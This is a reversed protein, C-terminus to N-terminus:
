VKKHNQDDKEALLDGWPYLTPSSSLTIRIAGLIPISLLMGGIGWLLGGAFLGVFTSLANINLSKGVMKPTLINGEVISMGTLVLTLGIMSVLGNGQALAVILVPLLSVIFGIAPVITMIGLVSGLLFAYPISFLTLVITDAAGIIVIILLRAILFKEILLVVEDLLTSRGLGFSHSIIRESSLRLHRRSALMLITFLLILALQSGAGFLAGLGTLILQIGQVASGQVRQIVAPIDIERTIHLWRGMRSNVLADLWKSLAATIAPFDAALAQGQWVLVYILAMFPLVLVISSLTIALWEPFQNKKMTRVLPAMMFALLASIALPVLFSRSQECGWIVIVLLALTSLGRPAPTVSHM